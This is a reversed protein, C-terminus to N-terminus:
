RLGLNHTRAVTANAVRIAHGEPDPFEQDQAVTLTRNAVKAWLTQRAPTDAKKTHREADAAVWPMLDVVM